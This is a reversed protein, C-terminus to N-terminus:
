AISQPPPTPRQQTASRVSSRVRISAVYYTAPVTLAASSFLAASTGSVSCPALSACESAPCHPCDSHSPTSISNPRPHHVGQGATSAVLHMASRAHGACHSRQVPDLGLGPTSVIGILLLMLASIRHAM